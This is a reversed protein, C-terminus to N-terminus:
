RSYEERAAFFVVSDYEMGAVSLTVAHGYARFWGTATSFDRPDGREIDLGLLEGQFRRFICNSAGTDIKALCPAENGALRLIVPINIGPQAPDYEALTSFSLAWPM